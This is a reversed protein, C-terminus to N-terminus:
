VDRDRHQDILYYNFKDTYKRGKKKYEKPTQKMILQFNRYFTRMNEYGCEIAIDQTSLKSNNLLYTATAIRYSNLYETYTMRMMRFFLKSLYPYDYQLNRAAEKLTCNEQYHKEVYLLLKYLVNTKPSEVFPEFTSEEILQACIEYLFSKQRFLSRLPREVFGPDMKLIPVTPVKDQYERYFSGVMEPHFEIIVTEGNEASVIEHIQNSFIIAMEREQLHWDKGDITISIGGKKVYVLEYSRHFHLPFVPVELLFRQWVKGDVGHKEFFIM